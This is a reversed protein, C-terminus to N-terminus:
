QEAVASAGRGDFEKALVEASSMRELNHCLSNRENFAQSESDSVIPSSKRTPLTLRIAVRHLVVQNCSEALNQSVSGLNVTSAARIGSNMSHSLYSV